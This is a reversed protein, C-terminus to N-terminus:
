GGAATGAAEDMRCYCFWQWSSLSSADYAKVFQYPQGLVDLQQIPYGDPGLYEVPPPEPFTKWRHVLMWQPPTQPWDNVSYYAM